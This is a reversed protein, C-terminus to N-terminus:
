DYNEKVKLNLGDYWIRVRDGYWETLVKWAYERGKRTESFKACDDCGPLFNERVNIIKWSSRRNYVRKYVLAHCGQTSSNIIEGPRNAPCYACDMRQDVVLDKVIANWETSM